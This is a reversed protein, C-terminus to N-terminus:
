SIDSLEDEEKVPCFPPSREIVVRDLYDAAEQAQTSAREWIQIKQTKERDQEDWTEDERRMEILYDVVKAACQEKAKNMSGSINRVQGIPGVRALFPDNPFIAVADYKLEGDPSFSPDTNYVPPAISLFDCIKEVREVQSACEATRLVLEQSSPKSEIPTSPSSEAKIVRQQDVPIPVLNANERPPKSKAKRPPCSRSAAGSPAGNSSSSPAPANVLAGSLQRTRKARRTRRAPRPPATSARTCKGAKKNQKIPMSNANIPRWSAGQNATSGVAITDNVFTPVNTGLILHHLACHASAHTAETFTAYYKRSGFFSLGAVEVELRYGKEHTYKTYVPRSIQRRDCYDQLLSSWLWSGLRAEPGPHDPLRWSSYRARLIDLVERCVDSKLAAQTSGDHELTVVSDGFTVKVTWDGPIGETYTFKPEDGSQLSLVALYWMTDAGSISGVDLTGFTPANGTSGPTNGTHNENSMGVERMTYGITFGIESRGSQTGKMPIFPTFQRPAMPPAAQPPAGFSQPRPSPWAQAHQPVTFSDSANLTPAHSPWSFPAGFAPHYPLSVERRGDTEGFTTQPFNSSFGQPFM